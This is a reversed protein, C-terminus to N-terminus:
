NKVFKKKLSSKEIKETRAYGCTTSRSSAAPTSITRGSGRNLGSGEVEPDEESGRAEEAEVGFDVVVGLGHRRHGFPRDDHRRREDLRPEDRRTM